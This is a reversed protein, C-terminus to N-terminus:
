GVIRPANFVAGPEKIILEAYADGDGRVLEVRVEPHKKMKFEAGTETHRYPVLELETQGTLQSYARGQKVVFTVTMGEFPMDYEGVMLALDDAPMELPKRTFTVAKVEPEVQFALSAIEGTVDVQFSVPLRSEFRQMDLNFIDFHQHNLAFWEGGFWGQLTDGELRVKFDAYGEAEFEGVYDALPHTPPRDAIREAATTEADQDIAAYFADYYDHYRGNWNNDPLDLLRDCVEYLLIDRLPRAEVNTLAVVGIQAQPVFGVILSFGDINGGHHILTYGRYPSMFWGLTYLFIETNLMTAMTADIPRIMQPLHMQHLNGPTVFQMGNYRGQNLHVSLWTALESASAHISGAPGLTSQSYHEMSELRDPEGPTRKIRYPTAYDGRQPLVDPSFCARTMGLPNFIRAQVFNEWTTGAVQGTLYGATMYMMNQYQFAERFGRSFEFHELNKILTPRDFNTGYWAMDHRPLGIRHCLLDRVTAHESIYGDKLKFEPLYTRVPKDWEVLGEDVLLAVGMSTFSKTISAIAFLTDPTVPAGSETDRVGYGAAHLVEGGQVIALAVGPCQWSEMAEQVYTDIADFDRPM